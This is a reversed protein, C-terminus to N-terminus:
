LTKKAIIQNICVVVEVIKCHCVFLVLKLKSFLTHGPKVILSANNAFWFAVIFTLPHYFNLLGICFIKEPSCVLERHISEPVALVIWNRICSEIINETNQNNDVFTNWFVFLLPRSMDCKRSLFHIEFFAYFVLLVKRYFRFSCADDKHLTRKNARIIYKPRKLICEWLFGVKQLM